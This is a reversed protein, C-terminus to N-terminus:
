PCINKRDPEVTIQVPRLVKVDIKVIVKEKLKRYVPYKCGRIYFPDKLIDLECADEVGAFEVEVYDGSRAGPVEIYGAFPIDIGVHRVDGYVVELDECHCKVRGTCDFTKYNINKHLKGNLLVKDTCVSMILDKVDKMIDKIELAPYNPAFPIDTELLIQCHNRGIVEPVKVCKKEKEMFYQPMYGTPMMPMMPMM